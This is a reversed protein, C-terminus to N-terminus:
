ASDTEGTERSLFRTMRLETGHTHHTDYEVRDMVGRIIHVGLGGPRIDDLDRGKIDAPECKIGFDRLTLELRDPFVQFSLIIEKSYDYRYAHKIVNTCAEDVALTVADVDRPTLGTLAGVASAVQRVVTMFVPDSPVRIEIRRTESADSMPEPESASM